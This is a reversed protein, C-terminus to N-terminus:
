LGSTELLCPADGFSPDESPNTPLLLHPALGSASLDLSPDRGIPDRGLARRLDDPQFM